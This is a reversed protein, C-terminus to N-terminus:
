RTTWPRQLNMRFIEVADRLDAPTRIPVTLWGSDPLAHHERARGADILEGRVGRPFPLDAFSRGEPLSHVHGIERRGALFEVGGFRHAATRVGPWSGIEETLVAVVQEGDVLKDELM